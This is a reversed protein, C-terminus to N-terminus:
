KVKSLTMEMIPFAQGNPLVFSGKETWQDGSFDASYKIKGQPVEFWWDFSNPGTLALSAIIQRGEHTFSHLKFTSDQCYLVALAHHALEGSELDTGKGEMIINQTGFKYEISEEVSFKSVTQDRNYSMGEGKWEGIMFSLDSACQEQAMVNPNIMAFLVLVAIVTILNKM